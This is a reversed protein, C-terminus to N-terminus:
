DPLDAVAEGLIIQGVLASVFYEGPALGYLRYDGRDDTHQAAASAVDVLRRRGAEYQVQLVRVFAGEVPEGAEDVVHGSVAGPRALVVDMRACVERPALDIMEGRTFPRRQGYELTMFGSRSASVRYTGSPLAAFEYAGDDGTTASVPDSPLSESTLRVSARALPGGGADLIRGRIVGSGAIGTRAVVLSQLGGSGIVQLRNAPVLVDISTREDGAGVAIAQADAANPAGPYYTLTQSADASTFLRVVAGSAGRSTALGSFPTGDFSLLTATVTAAVLFNGARLGGIRYEGRDDTLASGAPILRGAIATLATVTAGVAPDGLADVVRGSMAAAKALQVAVGDIAGVTVAVFGPKTISLRYAGETRPSAAFQGDDGTLVAPIHAAAPGGDASATLQVRANRIPAGTEASVVRGRISAAGSQQIPTDRAPSQAHVSLAAAGAALMVLTSAIRGM